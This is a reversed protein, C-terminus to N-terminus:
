GDGRSARQPECNRRQHQNGILHGEPVRGNEFPTTQAHLRMHKDVGPAPEFPKIFIVGDNKLDQILQTGSAKDEIIVATAAFM